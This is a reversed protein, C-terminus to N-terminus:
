GRCLASAMRVHNSSRIESGPTSSSNALPDFGICHSSFPILGYVLSSTSAFLAYKPAPAASASVLSAKSTLNNMTPKDHARTSMSCLSELFGLIRAFVRCTREDYFNTRRVLRM